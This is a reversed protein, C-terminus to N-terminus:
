LNQRMVYLGIVESETMFGNAALTQRILLKRVNDGPEIM